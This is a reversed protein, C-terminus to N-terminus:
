ALRTLRVGAHLIVAHFGAHRFLFAQRSARDAVGNDTWIWVSPQDHDLGPPLVVAVAQLAPRQLLHVPHHCHPEALRAVYALFVNGFLGFLAATACCLSVCM